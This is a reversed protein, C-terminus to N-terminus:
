KLTFRESILYNIHTKNKLINAKCYDMMEFEDKIDCKLKELLIILPKIKEEAVRNFYILKPYFM